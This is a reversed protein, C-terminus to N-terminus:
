SGVYAAGCDHWDQGFRCVESRQCTEGAIRQGGRLTSSLVGASAVPHIASVTRAGHVHDHLVFLAVTAVTPRRALRESQFRPLDSLSSQWVVQSGSPTKCM